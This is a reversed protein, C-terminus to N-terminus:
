RAAQNEKESLATRNYPSEPKHYFSNVRLTISPAESGAQM